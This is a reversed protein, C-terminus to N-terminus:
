LAMESVEPGDLLEDESNWDSVNNHVANSVKDHLHTNFLFRQLAAWVFPHRVHTVGSVWVGVVPLDFARRIQGGGHSIQSCFANDKPVGSPKNVRERVSECAM